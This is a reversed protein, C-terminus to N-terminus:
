VDVPLRHRLYKRQLQYILDSLRKQESKSMECFELGVEYRKTQSNKRIRKIQVAEIQIPRQLIEPPFALKVDKLMQAIVFPADEPVGARTQVKAALSGGISINMVELTLPDAEKLFCLQTGAPAALRFLARRQKRELEQPLKLYIQRDAIEAGLTAFVYKIHDKGTFEFDIQWVAMGAAAQEFGEPIDIVFHPTKKRNALGTIRTLHEYDSDILILKLPTKDHILQKLIKTIARGTIKEM